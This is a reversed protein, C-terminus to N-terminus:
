LYLKGNVTKLNSLSKLSDLSQNFKKGFTISELKVLNKLSDRLPQNFNTGFSLNKLNILNDLSDELPYNFNNPTYESSPDEFILNELNILKKLSNNLPFNYKYGLILSKLNILKDLSNELSQNFKGLKMITSHGLYLTELQELNNLSDHLPYDFNGGIILTKLSTLLNLSKGLSKNVNELLSLSELKKLDIHPIFSEGIMTLSKLNPINKERFSWNNSGLTLTELSPVKISRFFWSDNKSGVNLTKLNPLYKLSDDIENKFSFGFSLCELNQLNKFSDGLEQNFHYSCELTKLNKLDYLSDNLPYDFNGGLKLNELKNLGKLSDNLPYNFDSSLYLSELNVLKSLSDDLSKNFQFGFKLIKLKSLNKLSDNLPHDFISQLYLSKLNILNNLSDNLPQNFKGTIKLTELSTLDYLSHGFSKEFGGKITLTKLNNLGKLLDGFEDEKFEFFLKELNILNKLSDGLQQSTHVGINLEKVEIIKSFLNKIQTTNIKFIELGNLKLSTKNKKYQELHEIEWITDLWKNLIDDKFVSKIFEISVPDDKIDMLQDDQVSLQFKTKIDSKSQIIYIPGLGNYYNFRNDEVSATCWKTKKGYYKAGAETTPIIIKIKDTELLFIKDNIGETVDQFQIEIEPSSLFEELNILGTINALPKLNKTNEKLINYKTISDKFRGSNELSSPNGFTNNTYSKIVWDIYDNGFKTYFQEFIDEKSIPEEFTLFGKDRDKILNDKINDFRAIFMELTQKKGGGKLKLYKSKYKLYKDYYNSIPM